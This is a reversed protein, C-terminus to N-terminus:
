GAWMIAILDAVLWGVLGALTAIIMGIQRSEDQWRAVMGALEAVLEAKVEDAPKM